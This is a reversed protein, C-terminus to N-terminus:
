ELVGSLEAKLDEIEVQLAEYEAMKRTLFRVSIKAKAEIGRPTLVYFYARKNDSNKFNGAKVLGKDILAAICYNAKGLSVGLAKALERQSIEPNSELLKFVKYHTDENMASAPKPV